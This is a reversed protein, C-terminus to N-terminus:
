TYMTILFFLGWTNEYEFERTYKEPLAYLGLMVGAAVAWIIGEIM